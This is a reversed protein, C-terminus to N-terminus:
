MGQADLYTEWEKEEELGMEDIITNAKENEQQNDSEILKSLASYDKHKTDGTDKPVKDLPSGGKNAKDIDNLLETKAQIRQKAFDNEKNVIYHARQMQEKSFTGDKKDRAFNTELESSVAKFEDTKLFEGAAKPDTDVDIGVDEKIWDFMRETTKERAIKEGDKVAQEQKNDYDYSEKVLEQYDLPEEQAYETKEEKSLDRFTKLEPRMEATKDVELSERKTRETEFEKKYKAAEQGQKTAHSKTDKLMKFIKEPGLKEIEKLEEESLNDLALKKEAEIEEPTKTKDGTDPKKAGKEPDEEPKKEIDLKPDKESETEVKKEPDEEAPKEDKEVETDSQQIIEDNEDFKISDLEDNSLDDFDIKEVESKEGLNEAKKENAM